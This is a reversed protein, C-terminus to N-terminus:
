HRQGARARGSGLRDMADGRLPSRCPGRVLGRRGHPVLVDPRLDRVGGPAAHTGFVVWMATAFFAARRDFLRSATRWLLASAVLMFGLSLIRAGALGGVSDALAGLPPYLM